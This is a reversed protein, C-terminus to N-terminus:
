GSRTAAKCAFGSTEAGGTASGTLVSWWRSIWASWLVQTCTTTSSTFASLSSKCGPSVRSHFGISLARTTIPLPPPTRILHSPLGTSIDALVPRTTRRVSGIGQDAPFSGIQGSYGGISRHRSEPNTSDPHLGSRCQRMRRYQMSAAM